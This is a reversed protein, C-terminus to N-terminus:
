KLNIQSTIAAPPWISRLDPPGVIMTDDENHCTGNSLFTLTTDYALRISMKDGDYRLYHGTHTRVTVAYPLEM